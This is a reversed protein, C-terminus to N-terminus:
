CVKIHMELLLTGVNHLNKAYIKKMEYNNEKRKQEILYFKLLNFFCFFGSIHTLCVRM